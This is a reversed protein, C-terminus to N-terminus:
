NIGAFVARAWHVGPVSLLLPDVGDPMHLADSLWSTMPLSFGSKPRNIIQAPLPKQPSRALMAKGADAAFGALYPGLTELLKVDVFPARLELSHAMSAWDSDRLLQNRLYHTSELLGVENGSDRTQTAMM